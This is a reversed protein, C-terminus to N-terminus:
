ALFINEYECNNNHLFYRNQVELIKSNNGLERDPILGIITRPPRKQSIDAYTLFVEELNEM